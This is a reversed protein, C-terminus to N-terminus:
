LINILRDLEIHHPDWPNKKNTAMMNTKLLHLFLFWTGVRLILVYPSSCEYLSTHPTHLQLLIDRTTLSNQVKISFILSVASHKACRKYITSLPKPLTQLLNNNPSSPHWNDDPRNIKEISPRGDWVLWLCRFGVIVAVVMWFMQTDIVIKLNRYFIM